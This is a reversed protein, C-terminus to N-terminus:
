PSEHPAAGMVTFAQGRITHHFAESARTFAPRRDRRVWGPQANEAHEGFLRLTVFLIMPPLCRVRQVRGDLLVRFTKAHHRFERLAAKAGECTVGGAMMTREYLFWTAYVGDDSGFPAVVFPARPSVDAIAMEFVELPPTKWRRLGDREGRLPTSVGYVQELVLRWDNALAAQALAHPGVFESLARATNMAPGARHGEAVLLQRVQAKCQEVRERAPHDKPDMGLLLGAVLDGFSSDSLVNIFYDNHMCDKM